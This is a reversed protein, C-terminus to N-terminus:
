GKESVLRYAINVLQTESVPESSATAFNVCKNIRELLSELLEESNYSARIREHNAEMDTLSISVYHECHPSILDITSRTAYSTYNKKLNALYTKNFVALLHNNLSLEVTM